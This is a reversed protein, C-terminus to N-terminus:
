FLEIYEADNASRTNLEMTVLELLEQLAAENLATLDLGAFHRQSVDVLSQQYCEDHAPGEGAIVVINSEGVVSKSCFPCRM